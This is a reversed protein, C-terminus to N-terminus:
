ATGVVLSLADLTRMTWVKKSKGKPDEYIEFPPLESLLYRDYWKYWTMGWPEDVTLTQKESVLLEDVQYYNSYLFNEEIDKLYDGLPAFWDAVFSFPVLDWLEYLGPFMGKQNARIEFKMFNPSVKDHLRMKVRLVGGTIGIHGRLVRDKNLMGTLQKEAVEIQREVDSKTTNYAYRYALWANGAEKSVSKLAKVGYRGKKLNGASAALRVTDYTDKFDNLLNGIDGTYIDKILSIVEMANAINNMDATTQESITSRVCESLAEYDSVARPRRNEMYSLWGHPPLSNEYEVDTAVIRFYSDDADLRGNLRNYRAVYRPLDVWDSWGQGWNTRSEYYLTVYFASYELRCRGEYLMHLGEWVKQDYSTSLQNVGGGSHGVVSVDLWDVAFDVEDSLPMPAEPILPKPVYKMVRHTVEKDGFAVNPGQKLYSKTIEKSEAQPDFLLTEVLEAHYGYSWNFNIKRTLFLNSM